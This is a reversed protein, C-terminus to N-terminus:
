SCRSSRRPSSSRRTTARSRLARECFTAYGEVAGLATAYETSNFLGVIAADLARTVVGGLTARLEDRLSASADDGATLAARLADAVRAEAAALEDALLARLSLAGVRAGYTADFGAVLADVDGLVGDLTAEYRALAADVFDGLAVGDCTANAGSARTANAATANAAATAAAPECVACAARCLERM